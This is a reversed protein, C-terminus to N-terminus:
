VSEWEERPIDAHRLLKALLDGSIDRGHPNPIFVTVEDRRMFEHPGRQFPGEFGLKRFSRILDRRSIPGFRPM